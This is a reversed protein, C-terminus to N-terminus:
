IKCRLLSLTIGNELKLHKAKCDGTKISLQCILKLNKYHVTINEWGTDADWLSESFNM